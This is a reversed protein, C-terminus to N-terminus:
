WGSTVPDHVARLPTLDAAGDVASTAGLARQEVADDLAMELGIEREGALTVEVGFPHGRIHLPLEATVERAANEGMVASPRPASLAPVVEQDRERALPAAHAGRPIGPTHDLGRRM